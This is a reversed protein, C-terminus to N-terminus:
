RPWLCACNSGLLRCIFHVNLSFNFSYIWELERRDYVGALAPGVKKGVVNHCTNCAYEEFLGAGTKIIAEDTPVAERQAFLNAESFLFCCVFLCATTFRVITTKAVM